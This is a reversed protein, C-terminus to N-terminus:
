LTTSSTSAEYCVVNHAPYIKGLEKALKSAFKDANDIWPNECSGLTGMEVCIVKGTKTKPTSDSACIEVDEANVGAHRGVIEKLKQVARVTRRPLEQKHSGPMGMITLMPQMRMLLKEEVFDPSLTGM